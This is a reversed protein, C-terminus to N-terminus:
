YTLPPKKFSAKQSSQIHYTLPKSSSIINAWTLTERAKTHPYDSCSEMTSPLVRQTLSCQVATCSITNWYHATKQPNQRHRPLIRTIKPSKPQHSRVSWNM